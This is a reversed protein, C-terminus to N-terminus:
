SRHVRWSLASVVTGLFYMVKYVVQPIHLILFVSVICLLIKIANDEQRSLTRQLNMGGKIKTVISGNLFLLALLPIITKVIVEAWLSYGM